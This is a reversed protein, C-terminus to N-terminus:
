TDMYVKYLRFCHVMVSTMSLVVLLLVHITRQTNLKLVIAIAGQTIKVNLFIYLIDTLCMYLIFLPISM